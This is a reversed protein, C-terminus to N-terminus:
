RPTGIALTAPYTQAVTLGSNDIVAFSAVVAGGAVKFCPDIEVRRATSGIEQWKLDVFGGTEPQLTLRSQKLTRGNIDHFEFTVDCPPPVVSGDAECFAGLRGTDFSTIGALGFDIDGSRAQSRDGWNILIRTRQSFTDFIELSVLAAGSLVKLCPDIEIRAPVTAAREATFDLFGGTGPQLTLTAHKLTRGQLDHFEFSVECPAPVVSGDCFAALRANEFGTIGVLGFDAETAALGMAASLLTLWIVRTKM